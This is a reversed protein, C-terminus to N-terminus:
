SAQRNTVEPGHDLATTPVMQAALLRKSLNPMYRGSTPGNFEDLDDHPQGRDSDCRMGCSRRVGGDAGIEATCRPWEQTFQRSSTARIFRSVLETRRSPVRSAVPSMPLQGMVPSDSNIKVKPM